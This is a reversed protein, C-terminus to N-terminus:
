AQHRPIIYYCLIRTIFVIKRIKKEESIYCKTSMLSSRLKHINLIKKKKNSTIFSANIM